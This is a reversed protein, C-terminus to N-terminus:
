SNLTMSPHYLHDELDLDGDDQATVMCLLNLAGLSKTQLQHYTEPMVCLVQDQPIQTLGPAENERHRTVFAEGTCSFFLETTRLHQHYSTLANPPLNQILITAHFGGHSRQIELDYTAQSNSSMKGRHPRGTTSLLTYNQREVVTQFAGDPANVSGLVIALDYHRRLEILTPLPSSEGEFTLVDCLPAAHPLAPQIRTPNLEKLAAELPNGHGPKALILVKM